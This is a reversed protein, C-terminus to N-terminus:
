LFSLFLHYNISNIPISHFCTQILLFLNPHADVVVNGEPSIGDTQFTTPYFKKKPYIYQANMKLTMQNSM